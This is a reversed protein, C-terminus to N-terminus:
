LAPLSREPSDKWCCAHISSLAKPSPMWIVSTLSAISSLEHVRRRDKAHIAFSSRSRASRRAVSSTSCNSSLASPRTLSARSTHRPFLGPLGETRFQRLWRTVTQYSLNKVLLGSVPWVRPLPIIANNLRALSLFTMSACLSNRRCEAIEM